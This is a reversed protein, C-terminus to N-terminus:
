KTRPPNNPQSLLQHEDIFAALAASAIDHAAANWHPDCPFSLKLTSPAGKVAEVFADTLDLVPFGAQESLRALEVRARGTEPGLATGLEFANMPEPILVVAFRSQAASATSAFKLLLARTTEWAEEIVRPEPGSRQAAVARPAGWDARVGYALRALISYQGVLHLRSSEHAVGRTPREALAGHDAILWYPAIEAMFPDIIRKWEPHNDAPDNGPFFLLITADPGFPLVRKEFALLEVATGVSSVGFNLVEVGLRSELRRSVTQEDAVQLGQLFSDGILAIRPATGALSRERDRMGHSNIQIDESSYCATQHLGSQSGIPWPGTDPDNRYRVTSYKIPLQPDVIRLGVEIVLAVVVLVLLNV